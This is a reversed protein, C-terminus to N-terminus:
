AWRWRTRIYASAGKPHMTLATRRGRSLWPINMPYPGNRESWPYNRTWSRVGHQGSSITPHAQALLMSRGRIAHTRVKTLLKEYHLPHWRFKLLRIHRYSPPIVTIGKLSSNTIDFHDPTFAITPEWPFPYLVEPYHVHSDVCSENIDNETVYNYVALFDTQVDFNDFNFLSFSYDATIKIYLWLFFRVHSLQFLGSSSFLMSFLSNKLIKFFARSFSFILHLAHITFHACNGLCDFCKM